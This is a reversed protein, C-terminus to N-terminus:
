VRVTTFGAIKNRLRKSPIIAIDDAIRKNTAFDLTLRSYYKEIIQRSAQTLFLFVFCVTLVHARARFVVRSVRCSARMSRM